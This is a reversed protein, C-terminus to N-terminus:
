RGSEAALRVAERADGGGVVWELRGEPGVVFLQTGHAIDGTLSDRELPIGWKEITAEVETIEGGLLFDGGSLGWDKAVFALRTPTDRRPDLTVLVLAPSGDGGRAALLDHV